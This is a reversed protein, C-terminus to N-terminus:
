LDESPETLIILGLFLRKYSVEHGQDTELSLTSIRDYYEMPIPFLVITQGYPVTTLKEEWTDLLAVIEESKFGGGAWSCLTEMMLERDYADFDREEISPIEGTMQAPYMLSYAEPGSRFIVVPVDLNRVLWDLGAGAPPTGFLEDVECEYYIFSEKWNGTTGALRLSSVSRWIDMAWDFGTSPQEPMGEWELLVAEEIMLLDEAPVPTQETLIASYGQLSWVASVPLGTTDFEATDPDPYTMTLHGGPSKVTLEGTFDTGHFWVVPAEVCYDLDYYLPNGSDIPAGYALTSYTDMEVVGWEHVLVIESEVPVMITDALAAFLLGIM